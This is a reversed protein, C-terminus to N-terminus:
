RIVKVLITIFWCFWSRPDYWHHKKCKKEQDAEWEEVPKSINTEIWETINTCVMAM